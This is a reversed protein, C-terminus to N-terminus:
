QNVLPLFVRNAAANEVSVSAASAGSSLSTIIANAADILPQGDAATLKGSSIYNNVQTIFEQLKAIVANINGKGLQKQASDLKNLLAQGNSGPLAGSTLLAQVDASLAAIQQAPSPPVCGNAHTFTDTPQCRVIESPTDGAM